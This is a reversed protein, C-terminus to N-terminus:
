KKNICKEYNFIEKLLTTFKKRQELHSQAGNILYTLEEVNDDDAIQNLDITYHNDIKYTAYRKSKQGNPPYKSVYYERSLLKGRNWFYGSVDVALHLDKNLLSYNMAYDERGLYEFYQKYGKTGVDKGSHTIQLVGRGIYPYYSKGELYKLSGKEQSTTFIESELSAQALFHIKRLCTGIEYRAFMSNLERTFNKYTRQEDPIQCNNNSFLEYKYKNYVSKDSDRLKQIINRLEEETFNRDCFCQNSVTGNGDIKFKMTSIHQGDCEITASYDTSSKALLLNMKLTVTVDTKGNRKINTKNEGKELLLGFRSHEFVRIVANNDTINDAEIEFFFSINTNPPIIGSRLYKISLYKYQKKNGENQNQAGMWEFSPDFVSNEGLPSNIAM